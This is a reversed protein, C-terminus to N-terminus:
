KTKAKEKQGTIWGKLWEKRSVSYQSSEYPCATEPIGSLACDFGDRFVSDCYEKEAKEKAAVRQKNEEHRKQSAEREKAAAERCSDRIANHGRYGGFGIAGIVCVTGIVAFIKRFM